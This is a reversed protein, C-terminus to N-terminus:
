EECRREGYSCYDNISCKGYRHPYICVLRGLLFHRCDKCRVVPVVDATPQEKARLICEQFTLIQADCIQKEVPLKLGKCIEQLAKRSERLSDLLTEREIYEAM